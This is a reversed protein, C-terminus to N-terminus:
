KKSERIDTDVNKFIARGSCEGDEDKIDNIFNILPTHNMDKVAAEILIVMENDSISLGKQELLNKMTAKAKKLKSTGHIHRYVQEIYKVTDKAIERKIETNLKANFSERIKAVIFTMIITLIAPLYEAIIQEIIQKM